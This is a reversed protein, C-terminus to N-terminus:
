DIGVVLDNPARDRNAWIRVRTEAMKTPMDLISDGEATELAIKFGPTKLTGEFVQPGSPRVDEITGLTVQTPGDVEPYCGCLICSDSAALSAGYPWDPVNVKATPDCIVILSYQPRVAVTKRM